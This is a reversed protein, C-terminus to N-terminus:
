QIVRDTQFLVAAPVTLGLTKATKLNIVLEFRMPQEVPLDGPKTGKLIKDVYVSARRAQDALNPGYTILCGAEAFESFLAMAPLRSELALAAVRARHVTLLPSEVILLAENRQRRAIAFAEEFDDPARVELLQLEVALVRAADEIAKVLDLASAAPDWLVAARSIGPVAEKLLELQKGRLLEPPATALGTLNGGPRALSPVLGAAVPDPDGGV